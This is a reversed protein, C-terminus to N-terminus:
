SRPVEESIANPPIFSLLSDWQDLPIDASFQELATIPNFPVKASGSNQREEDEIRELEEINDLGRRIVKAKRAKFSNRLREFRDLRIDNIRRIEKIKRIESDLREGEKALKDLVSPSVEYVNYPRRLRTYNGYKKQGLLRRYNVSSYSYRSYPYSIDGVRNIYSSLALRNRYKNSSMIYLSSIDTLPSGALLPLPIPIMNTVRLALVM